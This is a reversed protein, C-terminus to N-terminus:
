QTHSLPVSQSIHWQKFKRYHTTLLGSPGLHSGSWPSQWSLSNGSVGQVWLDAGHIPMPFPDSTCHSTTVVLYMEPMVVIVINFMHLPLQPYLYRSNLTDFLQNMDEFFQATDKAADPLKHLEVMTKMGTFTLTLAKFSLVINTCRLLVPILLVFVTSVLQLQIASCRPPLACVCTWSLHCPWMDRQLKQPWEYLMKSTWVIFDTSIAGNLKKRDLRHLAYM